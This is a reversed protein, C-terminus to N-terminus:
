KWEELACLRREFEQLEMFKTVHSLLDNAVGRRIAPNVDELLLGLTDVAKSTYGKMKAVSDEVIENRLRDLEKKFQADKLWAYITETSVGLTRAAQTYNPSAALVPLAQIQSRKLKTDSEMQKRTNKM